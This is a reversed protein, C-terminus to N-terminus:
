SYYGHDKGLQIIEPIAARAREIWEPLIGFQEQVLKYIDTVKGKTKGHINQLQVYDNHVYVMGDPRVQTLCIGRMGNWYFSGHWHRLFEDATLPKDIFCYRYKLNNKHFTYIEYHEYEKQFLVEVGTHPTRYWRMQDKNLEMPHNLLYGPDALYKKNDLLVVLACHSNLARRMHAIVPYCIFGQQSLITQLFYTLSFCTGGLRYGAHDEIVEEPLRIREPSTYDQRLKIIKSINEYPLNAYHTLIEQLYALSPKKPKIKYHDLFYKVGADHGHPDLVLQSNNNKM